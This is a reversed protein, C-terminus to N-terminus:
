STAGKIQGSGHEITVGRKGDTQQVKPLEPWDRKMKRVCSGQCARQGMQPKEGHVRFM